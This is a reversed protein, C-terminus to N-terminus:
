RRRNMKGGKPSKMEARMRECPSCYRLGTLPSIAYVPTLRAVPSRLGQLVYFFIPARPVQPSLNERHAYARLPLATAEPSVGKPEDAAREAHRTPAQKIKKSRAPAASM